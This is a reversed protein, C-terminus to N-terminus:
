TKEINKKRMPVQYFGSWLDIKSYKRTRKMERMTQHLNPMPFKDKKIVKNLKKFNVCVRKRGNPKDVLVMNFGWPSKSPRIVGQRIMSDIEEKVQDKYILPIEIPSLAIPEEVEL